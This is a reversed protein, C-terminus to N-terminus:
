AHTPGRVKELHEIAPDVADTLESYNKSVFCEAPAPSSLTVYWTHDSEDYHISYSVQHALCVEHLKHFPHVSFM